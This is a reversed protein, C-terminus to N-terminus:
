IAAAASLHSSRQNELNTADLGGVDTVCILLKHIPAASFLSMKVVNVIRKPSLHWKLGLQISLGYDLSGLCRLAVKAHRVFGTRLTLREVTRITKDHLSLCCHTYRYVVWSLFCFVVTFIDIRSM